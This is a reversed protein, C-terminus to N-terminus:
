SKAGSTTLHNGVKKAYEKIMKMQKKKAMDLKLKSVRDTFVIGQMHDYEHQFIRSFMADLDEKILKGEIDEYEVEIIRPRNINLFLFPFTLCGEKMLVQEKYRLDTPLKEIIKPNFATIKRRNELLLNDGMVFMRFPLGCQNASLGLGSYKNMTKFMKDSLDKRDKIDTDKLMDDSFPAIATLVRPDQPPILKFIEM